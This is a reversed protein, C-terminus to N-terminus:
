NIILCLLLLPVIDLKKEVVTMLHKGESSSQSRKLLLWLSRLINAIGRGRDNHANMVAYYVLM